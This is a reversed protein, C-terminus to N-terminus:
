RDEGLFTPYRCAPVSKVRDALRERQSDPPKPPAKVVLSTPDAEADKLYQVFQTNFSQLDEPPNLKAMSAAFDLVVKRLGEVTKESVLADQYSSLGTCLAKLYEDDSLVPGSPTIDEVLQASPSGPSGGGGDDGCASFALLGALALAVFLRAM